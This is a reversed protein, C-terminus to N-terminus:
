EKKFYMQCSYMDEDWFNFEGCFDFGLSRYIEIARPNEKSVAFIIGDFGRREADELIFAILKRALGQGQMQPLIGLRAADCPNKIRPDWCDLATALEDDEEPDPHVASVAGVILGEACDCTSDPGAGADSPNAQKATVSDKAGTCTSIGLVKAAEDFGPDEPQIVVVYLGGDDFDHKAHEMTPYYEDWTSGPSARLIDYIRVVDKLENERALRIKM